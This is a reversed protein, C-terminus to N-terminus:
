GSVARCPAEPRAGAISTDKDAKAMMPAAVALEKGLKLGEEKGFKSPKERGLIERGFIEKGFIEKGFKSPKEKGFKLRTAAGGCSVAKAGSGSGM